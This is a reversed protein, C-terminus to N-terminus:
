SHDKGTNLANKALYSRAARAPTVSGAFDGTCSNRVGSDSITGKRATKQTHHAHVFKVGVKPIPVVTEGAPRM